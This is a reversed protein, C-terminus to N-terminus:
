EEDRLITLFREFAAAATFKNQWQARARKSQETRERVNMAAQRDLAAAIEEVTPRAPLLEGVENNLIEPIGNVAPAIIPVGFSLAEMFTVPLGGETATTSIFCDVANTQYYELLEQNQIAGHFHWNIRSKKALTNEALAVLNDMEPGDGIHTWDWESKCKALAKIILEVQKSPVLNSVSLLANRTKRSLTYTTPAWANNQRRTGLHSTIMKHGFDPMKNSLYQFSDNSVLIIKDMSDALYRRMPLYDFALRESFLDCGHARTVARFERHENKLRSAVYCNHDMWYSYLITESPDFDTIHQRIAALKEEGHLIITLLSNFRPTHWKRPGNKILRSEELFPTQFTRRNEVFLKAELLRNKTIPCNFAQCNEPLTRTQEVNKSNAIIIVKEFAAAVIPLENEIFAEGTGFPFNNTFLVLQKRKNTTTM